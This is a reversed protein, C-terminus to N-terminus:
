GVAVMFGPGAFALFRRLWIGGRPVPISAHVEALSPRRAADPGAFRWAPPAHIVSTTDAMGLARWTYWLSCWLIGSDPEDTFAAAAALDTGGPGSANSKTM